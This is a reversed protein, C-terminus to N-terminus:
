IKVFVLGFHYPGASFEDDIKLGLRKAGEKLAEIRVREEPPPGFPLAISKYEIVILKGEKKLIRIAERIIEVRKHSQYLTNILFAVDISNAEIKTARYVELDAWITKINTINEQKARREITELVNKLIDVAYIAGKEGVMIASPFSFYGLNGCGLDAVKMEESINAKELILDVNLTANSRITTTTYM